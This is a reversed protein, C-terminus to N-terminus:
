SAGVIQLRTVEFSAGPDITRNWLAASWVGSASGSIRSHMDPLAVGDQGDALEDKVLAVGDVVGAALESRLRIFGAFGCASLAYM